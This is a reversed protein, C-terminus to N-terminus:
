RTAVDVLILAYQHGGLTVCDSFVIDIYFKELFQRRNKIPRIKPPNAITASSRITSPLLGSNVLSANTAATFISKIESIDVALSATSIKPSM